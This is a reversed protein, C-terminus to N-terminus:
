SGTTSCERRGESGRTGDQNGVTTTCMTVSCCYLPVCLFQFLLASFLSVVELVKLKTWKPKLSLLVGDDVDGEPFLAEDEIAEKGKNVVAEVSAYIREDYSLLEKLLDHFRSDLALIFKKWRLLLDLKQDSSELQFACELFGTQNALVSQM